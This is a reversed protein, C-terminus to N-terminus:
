PYSFSAMVSPQTLGLISCHQAPLFEQSLLHLIHFNCEAPGPAAVRSKELLYKEIRAGTVKLGEDFYVKLFKGFRSSNDNRTTQANGLAELIPNCAVIRAELPEKRDERDQMLYFLARKAAETKGAGSEGSIIMTQSRGSKELEHRLDGAMAFIHPEDPRGGRGYAAKIDQALQATYLGPIDKYPNLSLLM